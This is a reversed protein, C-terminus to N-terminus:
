QFPKTRDGIGNTAQIKEYISLCYKALVLISSLFEIDSNLQDKLRLTLKYKFERILIESTYELELALRILESYFNNLSRVGMKLDPFKEMTHDKRNLNGFINEPYNFLDKITALSTISNLQLCPKLHQM